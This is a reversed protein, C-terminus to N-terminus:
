KELNQLTLRHSVAARDFSVPDTLQSDKLSQLGSDLISHLDQLRPQMNANSTHSQGELHFATM